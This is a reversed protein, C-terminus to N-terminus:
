QALGNSEPLGPAARLSIAARRSRSPKRDPTAFPSPKLYQVAIAGETESSAVISPATLVLGTHLAHVGSFYIAALMMFVAGVVVSLKWIELTQM